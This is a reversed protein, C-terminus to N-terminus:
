LEVLNWDNGAALFRTHLYYRPRREVGASDFQNGATERLGLTIFYM